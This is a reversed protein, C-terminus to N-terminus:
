TEYASITCKKTYIAEALEEQTMGMKVRCERIRMGMTMEMKEGNGSDFLFYACSFSDVFRIVILGTAVNIHWRANDGNKLSRITRHQIWSMAQYDEQLASLVEERPLLEISRKKIKAYIGSAM